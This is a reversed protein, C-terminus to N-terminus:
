VCVMVKTSVVGGASVQAGAWVSSHPAAQANVGGVALSLQSPVLTVMVTNLVVVLRAPKQPLVKLAVRVQRAVSVQVLVATHLWVTVTTSM